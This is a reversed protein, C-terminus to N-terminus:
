NSLSKTDIKSPSIGFHKKFAKSFYNPNAFGTQYAVDSVNGAGTELLFKAKELRLNRILDGPPLGILSKTKKFLQVRSIRMADALQEVGFGANDIEKRVHELARELFPDSVPEADKSWQVKLSSQFGEALLRRNQLINQLTLELDKVSFPKTLHADAGASLAEAKTDFGTRATLTIVPIHSTLLDSKLERCLAIGDQEGPLMIDTVVIDPLNEKASKLGEEATSALLVNYKDEFASAMFARLDPNDEVILALSFAELRETKEAYAAMETDAIASADMATFPLALKFEAGKIGDSAVEIKGGLLQILEKVLALGIGAGSIQANTTYGQQYRDFIATIKEKSIGEGNDSISLHLWTHGNKKESFDLTINIWGKAPTYKIANLVLNSLITELKDFDLEGWYAQENSHFEVKIYKSEAAPKLQQVMKQVAEVVDGVRSTVKMAKDELKKWHLVDNFRRLLERAHQLAQEVDPQPNEEALKELPSIVLTLPTRLEHTINVYLQERLMAAERDRSVAERLARRRQKERYILFGAMSTVFLLGAIVAWFLASNRTAELQAERNTKDQRNMGVFAQKGNQASEAEFIDLAMKFHRQADAYREQLRYAQALELHFALRYRRKQLSDLTSKSIIELGSELLATMGVADDGDKAYIKSWLLLSDFRETEKLNNFRLNLSDLDPRTQCLALNPFFFLPLIAFYLKMPKAAVHESENKTTTCARIQLPL